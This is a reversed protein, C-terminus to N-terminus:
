GLHKSMTWRLASVGHSKTSHVCVPGAEKSQRKWLATTLKKYIMLEKNEM